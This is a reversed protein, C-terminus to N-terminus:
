LRGVTITLMTHNTESPQVNAVGMGPNVEATCTYETSGAAQLSAVTKKIQYVRSNIHEATVRRDQTGQESLAGSVTVNIDVTPDLEITCTLNLPDGYRLTVITDPDRRWTLLPTPVAFHSITGCRISINLSISLIWCKGYVRM